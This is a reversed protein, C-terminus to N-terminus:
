FNPLAADVLQELSRVEQQSLEGDASDLQAEPSPAGPDLSRGAM